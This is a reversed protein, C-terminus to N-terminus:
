EAGLYIVSIGVVCLFAVNLCVCIKCEGARDYGPLICSTEDNSPLWLVRIEDFNKRNFASYFANVVSGM